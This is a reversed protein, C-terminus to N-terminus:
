KSIIINAFEEWCMSGNAENTMAIFRHSIDIGINKEYKGM